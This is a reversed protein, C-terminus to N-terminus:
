AKNYAIISKKVETAVDEASILKEMGISGLQQVTNFDVAVMEIGNSIYDISYIPLGIAHNYQRPLEEVTIVSGEILKTKFEPNFFMIRFRREGVQLYKVTYGGYIELFESVVCNSYQGAVENYTYIHKGLFNHLSPNTYVVFSKTNRNFKSFPGFQVTKIGNQRLYELGEGRGLGGNRFRKYVIETDNVAYSDYYDKFDSELRFLNM